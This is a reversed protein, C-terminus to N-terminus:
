NYDFICPLSRASSFSISKVFAILPKGSWAVKLSFPAFSAHASLSPTKKEKVKHLLALKSGKSLTLYSPGSFIHFLFLINQSDEKEWYLDSLSAQM